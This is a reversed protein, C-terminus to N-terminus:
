HLVKHINDIILLILRQVRHGKSTMTTAFSFYDSLIAQKTINLYELQFVFM